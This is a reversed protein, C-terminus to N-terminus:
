RAAPGWCWWSAQILDPRGDAHIVTRLASGTFVLRADQRMRGGLM